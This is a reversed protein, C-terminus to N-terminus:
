KRNKIKASFIFFMFKMGFYYFEMFYKKIGKARAQAKLFADKKCNDEKTCGINPM